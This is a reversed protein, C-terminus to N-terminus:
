LAQLEDKMATVWVHQKAAQRFTTPDTTNTLQALVQRHTNSFKEYGVYNEM